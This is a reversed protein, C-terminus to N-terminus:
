YFSCARPGFNKHWRENTITEANDMKGSTWLVKIFYIYETRINDNKVLSGSAAQYNAVCERVEAYGDNYYSFIDGLFYLPLCYLFSPSIKIYLLGHGIFFQDLLGLGNQLTVFLLVQKSFVKLSFYKGLELGGLHAYKYISDAVKAIGVYARVSVRAHILTLRCYTTSFVM